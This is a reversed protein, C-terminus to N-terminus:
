SSNESPDGGGEVALDGMAIVESGLTLLVGPSLQQCAGDCAGGGARILGNPGGKLLLTSAEAQIAPSGYSHYVVGPVPGGLNKWTGENGGIVMSNALEVNCGALEMAVQGTNGIVSFIGSGGMLVSSSIILRSNLAQLASTTYGVIQDEGLLTCGMLLLRSSNKVDLPLARTGDPGDVAISTLTVTGRCDEIQVVPTCQCVEGFVTTPICCTPGSQVHFGSVVVDQGPPLNRIAIASVEEALGVVLADGAIPGLVDVSKTLVFSAYTGPAVLVTDGPVAADVAPQIETFNAGSGLPGVTLVQATAPALLLLSALLTWLRNM